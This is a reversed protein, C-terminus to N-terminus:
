GGGRPIRRRVRDETRASRRATLLFDQLRNLGAESPDGNGTTIDQHLIRHEADARPRIVIAWHKLAPILDM